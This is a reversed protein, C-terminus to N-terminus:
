LFEVAEAVGENGDARFDAGDLFSMTVASVVWQLMGRMGDGHDASISPGVCVGAFLGGVGSGPKAAVFEPRGDGADIVRVTVAVEHARTRRNVHLTHKLVGRHTRRGFGDRNNSIGGEVGWAGVGWGTKTRHRRM